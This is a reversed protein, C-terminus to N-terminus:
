RSSRTSFEDPTTLMTSYTNLRSAIKRASILPIRVTNDSFFKRTAQLKDRAKQRASAAAETHGLIKETHTRMALGNVRCLESSIFNILPM